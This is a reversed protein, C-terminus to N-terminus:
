VCHKVGGGSTGEMQIITATLGHRVNYDGIRGCGMLQDGTVEEIGKVVTVKDLFPIPSEINTILDSLEVLALLEPAALAELAKGQLLSKLYEEADLVKYTVTVGITEKYPKFLAENFLYQFASTIAGNAFKGGSIASVSGGVTAASVAGRGLWGPHGM